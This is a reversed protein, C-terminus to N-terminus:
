RRTFLDQLRITFQAYIEDIRQSDTQVGTVTEPAVTVGNSTRTEVGGTTRFRGLWKSSYGVQLALWNNFAYQAFAGVEGAFAVRTGGPARTADAAGGQVSASRLTGLTNWSPGMSGQIGINWAPPLLNPFLVASDLGVGFTWTHSHANFAITASDGAPLGFAPGSVNSWYNGQFLTFLRVMRVRTGLEVRFGGGWQSDYRSSTGCDFYTLVDTACPNVDTLSGGPFRSGQGGVAVYINSFAQSGLPARGSAGDYFPHIGGPSQASASAAAMGALAITMAIIAIRM